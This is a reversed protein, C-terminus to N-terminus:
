KSSSGPESLSGQPGGPEIIPIPKFPKFPEREVVPDTIGMSADDYHGSDEFTFEIFDATHDIDNNDVSNDRIDIYGHLVWGFGWGVGGSFGREM